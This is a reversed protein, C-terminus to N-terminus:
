KLIHLALSIIFKESSNFTYSKEKTNIYRYHKDVLVIDLELEFYLDKFINLQYSPGITFKKNRLMQTDDIVVLRSTNNFFTDRYRAIIGFDHKGISKVCSIKSPLLGSILVNGKRYKVTTLPYFVYNTNKSIGTGYSFGFGLEFHPKIRKSIIFDTQIFLDRKRIKNDLSSAMIPSILGVYKYGKKSLKSIGFYYLGHILNDNTISYISPYKYNTNSFQLGALLYLSDQHLEYAYNLKFNLERNTHIYNDSSNSSKVYHLYNCSIVPFKELSATGLSDNQSIGISPTAFVLLYFLYIINRINKM